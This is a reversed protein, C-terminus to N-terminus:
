AAVATLHRYLDARQLKDKMDVADKASALAVDASIKGEQVLALLSSELTCSLRDGDMQGHLMKTDDTRILDSFNLNNIMVERAAVLSGDLAPVLRQVVIALL